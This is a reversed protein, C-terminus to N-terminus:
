EYYNHNEVLNAMAFREALAKDPFVSDKKMRRLEVAMGRRLLAPSIKKGPTPFGVSLMKLPDIHTRISLNKYWHEAPTKLKAKAWAIKEHEIEEDFDPFDPLDEDLVHGLEHRIILKTIDTLYGADMDRKAAIKIYKETTESVGGGDEADVVIIDVLELKRLSKDGYETKLFFEAYEKAQKDIEELTVGM